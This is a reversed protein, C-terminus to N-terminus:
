HRQRGPRGYQTQPTAPIQRGKVSVPAYIRGYSAALGTLLWYMEPPARSTTGIILVSGAFAAFLTRGLREVDEDNGVALQHRRARWLSYQPSVLAAAFLILGVGGYALAIGIYGNTIDILGQGQRMQEMLPNALFGPDGLLPNQWFVEMSVDILRTRYTVSGPEVSGVFPLYSLISDLVSQPLFMIAICITLLVLLISRFKAGKHPSLALFCTLMVAGGLWPGRSLTAILGGGISLIALWSRVPSDMRSAFFLFLTLSNAMVFGLANAHGTAVQARLNGARYLNNVYGAGLMDPLAGYLNWNRITEFLALSGMLTAVIVFIGLVEKFHRLERVGRSAVYYPLWIDILRYCVLRPITVVQSDAAAGEIAVSVAIFAGVAIDPLRSRHNANKSADRLILAFPLLISVGLIRAHNIEFITEIPGIGPILASINRPVCFLLAAFLAVPNADHRGVVFLLAGASVAYIWINHSLFALLTVAFWTNRWRKFDREEMAVRCMPKKAVAFCAAAVVMIVLLTKLYEPV